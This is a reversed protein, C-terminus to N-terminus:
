ADAASRAILGPSRALMAWFLRFSLWSFRLAERGKRFHSVGGPAPYLVDVDAHGVSVGSWAARVLVEMEFTFGGERCGLALVERVPYVRFGCQVDRLRQWAAVSAWFNSMSRGFRSSSPMQGSARRVGVWIRDPAGRAADLLRPIEEPPHQGDADLAVAHTFGGDAARELGSLIARGKGLNAGHSVVDAGALRAETDSGDRSGDCVAIVHGDLAARCREVVDGVTGANDYVPVIACAKM